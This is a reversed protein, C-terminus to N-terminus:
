FFLILEVGLGLSDTDPCSPSFTVTWVLIWVWLREAQVLLKVFPSCCWRLVTCHPLASMWLLCDGAICEFCATVPLASTQILAFLWQYHVSDFCVTVPLASFWPLCDGALFASLWLITGTICQTLCDGAICQTLAFLWWCHVSDFCVTVLLAGLWFLCDGTICHTLAFLWEVWQYHVSDFCVTVPLASLWVSYDSAIRQTLGFLWVCCATNAKCQLVLGVGLCQM